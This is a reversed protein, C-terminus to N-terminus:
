DPIEPLMRQLWGTLSVEDETDLPDGSSRVTSEWSRLEHLKRDLLTNGLQDYTKASSGRSGPTSILAASVVGHRVTLEVKVGAMDDNTNSLTFQPTQM